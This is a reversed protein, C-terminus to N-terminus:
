LNTTGVFGHSSMCTPVAKSQLATGINKSPPAELAEGGVGGECALRRVVELDRVARHERLGGFFRFRGGDISDGVSGFAGEGNVGDAEGRLGAADRERHRVSADAANWNRPKGKM